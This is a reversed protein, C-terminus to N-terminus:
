RLKFLAKTPVNKLTVTEGNTKQYILQCTKGFLSTHTVTMAQSQHKIIVRNGIKIKDKKM